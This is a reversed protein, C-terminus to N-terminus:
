AAPPETETQQAARGATLAGVGEGASWCLAAVAMLPLARIAGARMDKRRWARRLARAVLIPALGLSGAAYMWRQRKDYRASRLRAYLRGHAFREALFTGLPPRRSQLVIISPDLVIADDGERARIADHVRTEHFADHWDSAIAELVSRKYSVNCDSLYAAPGASVPPMFRAYELLYAAWAIPRDPQLKHIAGGIVVPAANHAAVIRACWDRAPLCHDETCAILPATALRVGIARLEAPHAGAPGRVLRAAPAGSHVTQENVLGPAMAVIIEIPGAVDDQKELAELVRKISRGGAFIVVVVSLIPKNAPEAHDIM